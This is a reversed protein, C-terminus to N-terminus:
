LVTVNLASEFSIRCIRDSKALAASFYAAIIRSSRENCVFTTPALHDHWVTCEKRDTVYNLSDVLGFCYAYNSFNSAVRLGSSPGVKNLEAYLVSRNRFFHNPLELFYSSRPIRHSFPLKRSDLVENERQSEVSQLIRRCSDRVGKCRCSSEEIWM